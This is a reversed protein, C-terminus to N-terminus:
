KEEQEKHPMKSTQDTYIMCNAPLKTLIRQGWHMIFIEVVCSIRNSEPLQATTSKFDQSLFHAESVTKVAFYCHRLKHRSNLAWLIFVPRIIENPVLEM